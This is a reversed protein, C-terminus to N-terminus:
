HDSLWRPPQWPRWDPDRRLRRVFLWDIAMTLAALGYIALGLLWGGSGELLGVVFVISGASATVSWVVFFSWHVWPPHAELVHRWPMAGNLTQRDM